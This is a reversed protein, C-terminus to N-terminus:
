PATQGQRREARYITPHGAPLAAGVGAGIGAGLGIFTPLFGPNDLGENTETFASGLGLGIGLGAAAGIGLGWLTHRGRSRIGERTSVRLVDARQVGVENQNVRFSIADESFSVFTGDQSKLKQDVVQIKQGVDLKRLNDWTQEPSQAGAITALLLISLSIQFLTRMNEERLRRAIWQFNNM